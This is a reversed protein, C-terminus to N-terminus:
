PDPWPRIHRPALGALLSVCVDVHDPLLAWCRSHRYCPPAYWRAAWRSACHCVATSLRLRPAPPLRVGEALAAGAWRGCASSKGAWQEVYVWRSPGAAARLRMSLAPPPPGSISDMMGRPEKWVPQLPPRVLHRFFGYRQLGRRRSPRELRPCLAGAGGRSAQGGVRRHAHTRWGKRWGGERRHRSGNHGTQVMPRAATVRRTTPAGGWWSLDQRRGGNAVTTCVASKPGAAAVKEPAKNLCSLM